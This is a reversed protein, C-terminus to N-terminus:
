GPPDKQQLALRRAARVRTDIRDRVVLLADLKSGRSIGTHVKGKSVFSWAWSGPVISQLIKFEIRKHEM